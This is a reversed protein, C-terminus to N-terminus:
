TPPGVKVYKGDFVPTWTAGGDGSTEWLQRVAGDALPTWTIRQRLTAGPKSPDPESAALVMRLGELGGALRLVGGQNDVWHQHWQRTDANWNNLSTGTFGGRGSWREILACGGEIAAVHNDGAKKGDPTFVEWHGLWFDFQRHVADRCGSTGQAAGASCVLAM